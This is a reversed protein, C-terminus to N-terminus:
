ITKRVIKSAGLERDSLANMCLSVAMPHESITVEARRILLGGSEMRLDTLRDLNELQLEALETRRINAYAALGVESDVRSRQMSSGLRTLAGSPHQMLDQNV